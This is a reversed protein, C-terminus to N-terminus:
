HAQRRCSAPTGERPPLSRFVMATFRGCTERNRTPRSRFPVPKCRAVVKYDCVLSKAAPLTSPEPYRTARIDHEMGDMPAAPAVDCTPQGLRAPHDSAGRLPYIILRHRVDM